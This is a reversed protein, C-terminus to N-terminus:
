TKQQDAMAALLEETEESTRTQVASSAEEM